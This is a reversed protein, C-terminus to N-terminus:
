RGDPDHQIRRRRWSRTVRMATRLRILRRRLPFRRWRLRLPFRGLQKWDGGAAFKWCDHDDSKRREGSFDGRQRDKWGVYDVGNWVAGDAFADARQVGAGAVGTVTINVVSLVQQDAATVYGQNIYNGASSSASLLHISFAANVAVNGFSCALVQSGVAGSIAALGRGAILRRFRGTLGAGAPLPDNLTANNATAASGNSIAITFGIPSGAQSRRRM